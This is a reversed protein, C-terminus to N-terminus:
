NRIFPAILHHKAPTVFFCDPIEGSKFAVEDIQQLYENRSQYPIYGLPKLLVELDNAMEKSFVECILIPEFRKLTELGHGIILHETEETDLKMLDIGDIKNIEVFHDLTQTQVKFKLQSTDSRAGALHGSGGLTAEKLYTYKPSFASIFEATGNESSLAIKIPYIREEFGNDRINSTLYAFPGPSPEFAWAKANPNVGALILSYLGTNSGVDFFSSIKPALAEFVPTYEYSRYGKWAINWTVFSTQNTNMKIFKGNQLKFMVSGSPPLLAKQPLLKRFPFILSRLIKNISPIYIIRYILQMIM